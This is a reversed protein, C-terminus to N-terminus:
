RCDVRTIRPLTDPRLEGAHSSIPTDYLRLRLQFRGGAPLPLWNGTEPTTALVIRMGGREGRVIEADTFSEREIPLQLPRGRPDAIGLSWGRAPPTAGSVLYRCRADLAQGADDAGAILELGEGAGLPLHVGRALYARMYPDIDRAGSNPWSTWAGVQARGFWPREAVAYRASTLGLGAGLAIVYALPLVRM